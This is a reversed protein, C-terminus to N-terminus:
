GWISLVSFFILESEVVHNYIEHNTQLTELDWKEKRYDINHMQYEQKNQHTLRFM